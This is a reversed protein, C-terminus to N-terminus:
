VPDGTSSVKCIDALLWPQGAPWREATLRAESLHAEQPPTGPGLRARKAAQHGAYAADAAQRWRKSGTLTAQPLM